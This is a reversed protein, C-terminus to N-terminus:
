RRRSLHLAIRVSLHVCLGECMRLRSAERASFVVSETLEAEELAFADLENVTDDDPARRDPGGWEAAM